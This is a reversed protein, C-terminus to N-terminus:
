NEWDFSLKALDSSKPDKCNWVKFSIQGHRINPGLVAQYANENKSLALTHTGMKASACIESVSIPSKGEDFPATFSYFVLKSGPRDAVIEISYHHGEVLKGGHTPVKQSEGHSHGEHGFGSFPTLSFFVFSGATLLLSLRVKYEM